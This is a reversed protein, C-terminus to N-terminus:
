ATPGDFRKNNRTPARSSNHGGRNSTPGMQIMDLRHMRTTRALQESSDVKLIDLDGVGTLEKVM